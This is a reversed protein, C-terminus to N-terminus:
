AAVPPQISFTQPAVTRGDPLLEGSDDFVIVGNCLLAWGQEHHAVATQAACRAPSDASPCRPQHSCM